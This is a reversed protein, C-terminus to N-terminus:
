IYNIKQSEHKYKKKICWDLYFECELKVEDIDDRGYFTEEIYMHGDISFEACWGDFCVM